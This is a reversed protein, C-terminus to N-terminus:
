FVRILGFSYISGKRSDLDGSSHVKNANGRLLELAGECCAAIHAQRLVNHLLVLANPQAPAVLLHASATATSIQQHTCDPQSSLGLLVAGGPSGRPGPCCLCLLWICCAAAKVAGSAMVHEVVARPGVRCYTKPDFSSVSRLLEGRGTAPVPM